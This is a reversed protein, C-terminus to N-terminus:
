DGAAVATDEQEIAPDAPAEAVATLRRKPKPYRQYIEGLFGTITPPLEGVACLELLRAAGGEGKLGKLAKVALARVADDIPRVVPIGFRGESDENRLLELFQWQRDLPTEEAMLMEAGKQTIEKTIAYTGQLAIIEQDTRKKRDFFAFAPIGIEKFFAGLKELNGDGDANIVSIGAVDLPFLDLNHEELKHAVLLLADQETIGEGVIVGRGLMAEAIARRFNQRYNKAKMGAPLKIVVGSLEGQDNRDLKVIGEPEFREIVYPSHSTVFCQSTEELLYNAIRRQTHPPLAIEPEEMAFIVNDKKLDAIFTLLALVLTNLTGTGSQQFPVAAEGQGMTLFFAITKRLHERTLQSVFLRTSRGEGSPAIYEALRAEIEDLVPGLETADADIPPNLVALRKRISEWMGKRAEKMRLINDLLTGRELSLARSGTRITRLYLFGIARKVRTPISKPEEDPEENTRGYITRAVFQDEDIDYRGVTVLRLCLEVQPDDAAAIEGETLLRKESTHWFELNAACLTKIDDTLDVLIAEIRLPVITEGDDALYNANRFDFEEVPPTRNLRDPGLVLDLAECITSKGVNNGGILLTHGSFHLVANAIGRFNEISLRSVRM